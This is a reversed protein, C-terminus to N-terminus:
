TRGDAVTALWRRVERPSRLRVWRVHGLSPDRDLGEYRRNYKPHERIAYRIIGDPRLALRLPERNGSWLETRRIGRNLTRWVVRPVTVWRPQDLWVVTDARSWVTQRAGVSFYNGDIVWREGAAAEAARAAFRESGAETWNPEWWLADLEVHLYGLEHALARAVTTKGSGPPGVVVVRDV